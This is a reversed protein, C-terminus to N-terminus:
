SFINFLATLGIFVWFLWYNEGTEGTEYEPRGNDYDM